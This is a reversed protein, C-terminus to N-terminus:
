SRWRLERYGVLSFLGGLILSAAFHQWPMSSGAVAARLQAAIHTFPSLWSVPEILPPLASPPYLVPSLAGLSVPALTVLVAGVDRSRACQALAGGLSCLGVAGALSALLIQPLDEASPDALGAAFCLSLGILLTATGEITGVGVRALYYGAKSIPTTFLLATRGDFRDTLMAEGTQAVSGALSLTLGGAVTFDRWASTEDGVLLFLYVFTAPLAISNFLLFSLRGRENRAFLVILQCAEHAPLLLGSM